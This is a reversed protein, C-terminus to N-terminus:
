KQVHKAINLEQRWELDTKESYFEALCNTCIWSTPWERGDPDKAFIKLRLETNCEPCRPREYDDMPSMPRHGATMTSVFVEMKEEALVEQYLDFAVSINNTIHPIFIKRAKAIEMTRKTFEAFNLKKM